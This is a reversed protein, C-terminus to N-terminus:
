GNVYVCISITALQLVLAAVGLTLLLRRQALLRGELAAVGTDAAERDALRQRDLARLREEARGAAAAADGAAERASELAQRTEALQRVVEDIRRLAQEVLTSVEGLGLERSKFIREMEALAEALPERAVDRLMERYTSSDDDFM